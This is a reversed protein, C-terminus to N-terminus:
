ELSRLEAAAFNYEDYDKKGTALCRQFYVRATAAEGSLRRKIGAYFWAECQRGAERDSAGRNAARLFDAESLRGLLFAGIKREWRAGKPKKGPGFFAGLEQDATAREGNRARIVWIYFRPYNAEDPDMECFRRYDKLAEEWRQTLYHISGRGYYARVIGPDLELARSLDGCSRDLYTASGENAHLNFLAGGRLALAWANDPQLELFRSLNTVAEDFRGSDFAAMALDMYEHERFNLRVTTNTSVAARRPAKRRHAPDTPIWDPRPRLYATHNKQDIVLNLQRLAEIGISGELVDGRSVIGLETRTAKRVAVNTWTLPGIGLDDAEFTRGIGLGSGPMFGIRWKWAAHPHTARWEKWRAPSLSVGEPNGTDVELVGTKGDARPLELALVGTRRYVPLAVWGNTDPPLRDVSKIADAVADIAIFDDKMDPWGILGDVDWVLWWPPRYTALKLTYTEQGVTFRCLGTQGINVKGPPPKASSPPASVRLGLRKASPTFVVTGEAGTDYAFRVPKDNIRTDALFREEEIHRCGTLLLLCFLSNLAPKM